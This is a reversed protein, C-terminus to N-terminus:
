SDLWAVRSPLGSTNGSDHHWIWTRQPLHVIKAGAQIMHIELQWDEMGQTEGPQYGEPAWGGAERIKATRALFTVPYIRPSLSDFEQGFHGPFPDSGGVVDFWPFVLDAEKENLENLLLELHNPYMEDDDDLYAVLNSDVQNTGNQRCKAAGERETDVSIIISRIEITQALISALARNLLAHRPRGVTTIVVSIDWPKFMFGTWKQRNCIFHVLQANARNHEGGKTLPVIHDLNPRWRDKQTPDILKGCIRCSKDWSEKWLTQWSLGSEFGPSERLGRARLLTRINKDAKAKPTLYCSM